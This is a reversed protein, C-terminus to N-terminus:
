QRRRVKLAELVLHEEAYKSLSLGDFHVGWSPLDETGDNIYVRVSLGNGSREAALRYTVWMGTVPDKVAGQGPGEPWDDTTILPEEGRALKEVALQRLRAAIPGAAFVERSTNGAILHHDALCERTVRAATTHGKFEVNFHMTATPSPWPIFDDM